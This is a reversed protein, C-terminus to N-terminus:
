IFLSQAWGQRMQTKAPHGLLFTELITASFTKGTFPSPACKYKLEEKQLLHAKKLDVLVLDADMGEQIKGKQELQYLKAPNESLLACVQEYSLKGKSAHDLMLPFITQVGPIGSPSHPYNKEKEEPTHPAHDSGIVDVTGNEIGRWLGDQHEKTRIPPNMQVANGYLDYDEPASLTLHQPTVEVTCIDKNKQLFEMEEKTSIHLIHVRRGVERALELVMQTSSLATEVDRWEYHAHVSRARDRIFSRKVLLAENESHLAIIGQTKEFIEKLKDRQYLLLDGTSSGLFIKIGCCAPTKHAYKLEDLNEATGGMFFSYHAYSTKAAIQRKEDIAARSTTPPKTNPMELFSTVGGFIASLSGHAIDEKHTLGPERFHVQTDIVGPFLHLGEGDIKKAHKAEIRGPAGIKEVKKSESSFLVDCIESNRSSVVTVNKIITYSM